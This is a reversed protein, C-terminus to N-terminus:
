YYILFKIREDKMKKREVAVKKYFWALLWNQWNLNLRALEILVVWDQPYRQCTYFSAFLPFFSMLRHVCVTSLRIAEVM